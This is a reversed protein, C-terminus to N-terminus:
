YIENEPQTRWYDVIATLYEIQNRNVINRNHLLNGMDDNSSPLASCQINDLIENNINIESERLKILKVLLETAKANTM